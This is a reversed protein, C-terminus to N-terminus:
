NIFNARKLLRQLMTASQARTATDRAGLTNETMGDVIGAEIATAMENDAWVITNADVFKELVQTQRQTSVVPKAGAYALARVVMAALEERNISTNPRFTGDEYGDIIKASAAARVVGSYWASSAVDSFTGGGTGSADLGLSRVVLAAFEARTISREPEFTTDTVGDIVLKNALLQIYSQAWHGSIDNFAKNLEIVAYVSSGNRKLVAENGSFLAPVFSLRNTTPNFLVGTAKSPDVTKNLPLVRSLYHNGLDLVATQNDKGLGVINFDVMGSVVTGGLVRAAASVGDTTAQNAQAISVRIILDNVSVSLKGALDQLKLVNLPINYMGNANKVKLLKKPNSVFSELAKAPILALDGSLTLTVTDYQEFSNKLKDANISGDAGVSIDESASTDVGAGGGGGGGGGGGSGGTSDDSTDRYVTQYVSENVSLGVPGYLNIYDYNGINSFNFNYHYRGNVEDYVSYTATTVGIQNGSPDYAYVTASVGTDYVDAYVSGSVSGNNYPTDMKFGPAAFALVPLLVSFILMLVTVQATKQLVAPKM